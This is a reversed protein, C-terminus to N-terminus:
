KEDDELVHYLHSYFDAFGKSSFDKEGRFYNGSLERINGKKDMVAVDTALYIAEHIDHTVFIITLSKKRWIDLVLKHLRDRTQADVSGFPEDMLLVGPNTSLGRAIVARKRMGGSLEHPYYKEFGGLNVDMLLAQSKERWHPDKLLRLPLAINGLTDLWPFLQDDNQFIIIRETGPEKMEEGELRVTGSAPKLMSSILKLLTSKGCGSPGLICFLSNKEIGLSLSNIVDRKEGTESKASGAPAPYRYTLNEISLYRSVKGNGM